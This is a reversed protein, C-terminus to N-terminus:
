TLRDSYLYVLLTVYFLLENRRQEPIEFDPLWLMVIIRIWNFVILKWKIEIYM